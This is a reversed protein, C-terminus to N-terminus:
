YLCAYMVISYRRRKKKLLKVYLNTVIKDPSRPLVGPIGSFRLEYWTGSLREYHGLRQLLANSQLM